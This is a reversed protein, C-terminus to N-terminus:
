ESTKEGEIVGAPTIKITKARAEPRKPLTLTLKGHTFEAKAQEADVTPPLRLSREFAGWHLERRLYESEQTEDEHRFEGKITLVDDEVQIDLDKPDIGPVAAEVVYADASERVDVSLHQGGLEEGSGRFFAPMRPFPQDFMRDLATRMGALEQFPDWRTLSTM